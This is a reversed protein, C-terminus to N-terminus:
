LHIIVCPHSSAYEILGLCSKFVECPVVGTCLLVLSTEEQNASQAVRETGSSQGKYGPDFYEVAGYEEPSMAMLPAPLPDLTMGQPTHHRLVYSHHWTQSTAAFM